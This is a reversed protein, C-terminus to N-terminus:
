FRFSNKLVFPLTQIENIDFNYVDFGFPWLYMTATYQEGDSGDTFATDYVKAIRWCNPFDSARYNYWCLYKGSAHSLVVDPMRDFDDIYVSKERVTAPILRGTYGGIPPLELGPIYENIHMDEPAVPDGGPLVGGGDDFDDGFDSM